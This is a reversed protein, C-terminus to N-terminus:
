FVRYSNCFLVYGEASRVIRVTAEISKKEPIDKQPNRVDLVVETGAAVESPSTKGDPGFLELKTLKVRALTEHPARETNVVTGTVIAQSMAGTFNLNIKNAYDKLPLPRTTTESGGSCGTLLGFLCVLLIVAIAISLHRTGTIRASHNHCIGPRRKESM